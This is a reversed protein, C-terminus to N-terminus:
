KGCLFDLFDLNLIRLLLVNWLGVIALNDNLVQNEDVIQFDNDVGCHPWPGRLDEYCRHGLSLGFCLSILLGVILSENVKALNILFIRHFCYSLCLWCFKCLFTFLIFLLLRRERQNSFKASMLVVIRWTDSIDRLWVAKHARFLINPSSIFNRTAAWAIIWGNRALWAVTLVGFTMVLRIHLAFNQDPVKLLIQNFKEARIVRPVDLRVLLPYSM